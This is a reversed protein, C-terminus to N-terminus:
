LISYTTSKEKNYPTTRVMVIYSDAVAKKIMYLGQTLSIHICFDTTLKIGCLPKSWFLYLLM